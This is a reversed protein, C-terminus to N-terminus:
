HKLLVEQQQRVKVICNEPIVGRILALPYIVSNKGIITGPNLVANSGVEVEDGLIAGFKRLGTAITTEGDNVSIDSGNSKYNSIIVGAGLHAKYGLVSDGVYNFHPITVNNFLVAHKVETSNGIIVNDGIIVHGRIYAGTRLECNKGILAPGHIMVNPGIVTGEGIVVNVDISATPHIKVNVRKANTQQTVLYKQLYDALVKLVEWPQTRNAFLDKHEIHELNFLDTIKPIM